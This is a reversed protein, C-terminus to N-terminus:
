GRMTCIVSEHPYNADYVCNRGGSADYPADAKQTWRMTSLSLIWTHNEVQGNGAFVNASGALFLSDSKPLYQLTGYTQMAHPAGDPNDLITGSEIVFVSPDNLRTLAGTGIPEDSSSPNATPSRDSYISCTGGGCTATSASRTQLDLAYVANDNQGFH